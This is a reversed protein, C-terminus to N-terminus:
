KTLMKNINTIDIEVNQNDISMQDKTSVQEMIDINTIDIEVY